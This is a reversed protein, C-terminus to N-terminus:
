IPSIQSGDTFAAAGARVAMSRTCGPGMAAPAPPAPLRRLRAATGRPQRPGRQAPAVRDALLHRRRPQRRRHEPPRLARGAGDPGGHAVRSDLFKECFWYTADYIITATQFSCTNRYGGSPRLKSMLLSPHCQPFSARLFHTTIRCRCLNLSSFGHLGFHSLFQGAFRKQFLDAFDRM